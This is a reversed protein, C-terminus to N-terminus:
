PPNTNSGNGGRWGGGGSNLGDRGGGHGGGFRTSNQHESNWYGGRDWQGGHSAQAGVGDFKRKKNMAEGSGQIFQIM